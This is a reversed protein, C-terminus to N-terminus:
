SVWGGRDHMVWVGDIKEFEYTNGSTASDAYLMAKKGDRRVILFSLDGFASIGFKARYAELEDRTLVIFRANVGSGALLSRDGVFFATGAKFRSLVMSLVQEEASGSSTASAIHPMPDIGDDIGDGDTDRSHPDTVMREEVLDSLGDGDTDRRLESWSFAVLARRLSKAAAPVLMDPNMELVDAEIRVGGESLM